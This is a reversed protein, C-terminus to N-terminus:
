KSAPAKKWCMKNSKGFAINYCAPDALCSAKCADYDSVVSSGNALDSGGLDLNDYDVWDIPAPVSPSPTTNPATSPSPPSPPSPNPPSPSSTTATGQSLYYGVGGMVSFCICCIVAIVAFIIINNSAM